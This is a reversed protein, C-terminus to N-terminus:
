FKRLQQLREKGRGGREGMAAAPMLSCISDIMSLLVIKRMLAGIVPICEM